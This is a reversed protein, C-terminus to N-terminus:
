TGNRAMALHLGDTIVDSAYFPPRDSTLANKVEMIHHIAQPSSLVVFTGSSIKLSFIDGYQKAWKTFAFHTGLVPLQLLNGVLPTTPPGPPLFSERQGIKLAKYLLWTAALLLAAVSPLSTIAQAFASTSEM